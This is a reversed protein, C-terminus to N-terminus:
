PLKVAGDTVRAVVKVRKDLSGPPLYGVGGTSGAVMSLVAAPSTAKKPPRAEGRVRRDIWYRVMSDPDFGLVVKDFTQRQPSKEPLNVPEIAAGNEWTRKSTQFISRLEAASLRAAPNSANVIVLLDGSGAKSAPACLVAASCLAGLVCFVWRTRRKPPRDAPRIM